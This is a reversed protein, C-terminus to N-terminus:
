VQITPGGQDRDPPAGAARPPDRHDIPKWPPRDEAKWPPGRTGPWGTSRSQPSVTPSVTPSWVVPPSSGGRPWTGVLPRGQHLGQPIGWQITSRDLRDTRCPPRRVVSARRSGGPWGTRRRRVAEWATTERTVGQASV